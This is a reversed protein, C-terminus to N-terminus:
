YWLFLRVLIAMFPGVFVISDIRDYVGGHGPILSSSDKIGVQRKIKSQILDGLQSLFPLTLFILVKSATLPGPALYHYCLCIVLATSLGGGLLGEITKKPSIIPCLKKKGLAKGWFWALSDMGFTALVLILLYEIWREYQFFSLVAGFPITVFIGPFCPIKSFFRIFRKSELKTAFFYYLLLANQLLGIFIFASVNQGQSLFGFYTFSGIFIFQSGMYKFSFVLHKFFNVELEHVYLVGFVLMVSMMPIRGGWLSSVIISILVVASLVRQGTNTMLVTGFRTFHGIQEM